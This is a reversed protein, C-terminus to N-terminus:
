NVLLRCAGRHMSARRWCQQAALPRLLAEAQRQGWRRCQWCKWWWCQRGSAGAAASGASGGGASGAAPGLLQVALVEVVLVAQRQNPGTVEDTWSVLMSPYVQMWPVIMGVVSM